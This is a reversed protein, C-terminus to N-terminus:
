RGGVRDIVLVRSAQETTTEGTNWRVSARGGDSTTARVIGYHGPEGPRQVTDGSRLSM